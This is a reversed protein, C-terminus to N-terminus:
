AAKRVRPRVRRLTEVLQLHPRVLATGTCASESRANLRTGPDVTFQSVDVQFYRALTVIERWLFATQGALRSYFSARSVGLEKALEPLKIGNAEALTRIQRVATSEEATMHDLMDAQCNPCLYRGALMNSM